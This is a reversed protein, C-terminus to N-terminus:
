QLKRWHFVVGERRWTVQMESVEGVFQQQSKGWFAADSRTEILDKTFRRKGSPRVTLVDITSPQKGPTLTYVSGKRDQWQGMLLARNYLDTESGGLWRLAASM